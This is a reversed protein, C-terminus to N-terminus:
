SCRTSVHPSQIAKPNLAARLTSLLRCGCNPIRLGPPTSPSLCSNAPSPCFSGYALTSSGSKCPAIVSRKTACPMTNPTTRAYGGSFGLDHATGTSGMKPEVGHAQSDPAHRGFSEGVAYPLSFAPVGAISSQRDTHAPPLVTFLAVTRARASFNHVFNLKAIPSKFMKNLLIAVPPDRCRYRARSGPRASGCVGVNRWCYDLNTSSMTCEMPLVGIDAWERSRIDEKSGLDFTQGFRSLMPM